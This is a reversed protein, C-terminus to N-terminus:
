ACMRASAPDTLGPMLVTPGANPQVTQGSPTFEAAGVDLRVPGANPQVTQGSPTFEAAGANFRFQQSQHTAGGSLRGGSAVGPIYEQASASLRSGGEMPMEIPTQM